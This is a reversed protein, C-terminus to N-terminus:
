AFLCGNEKLVLTLLHEQETSLFTPVMYAVYVFIYMYVFLNPGYIAYIGLHASCM